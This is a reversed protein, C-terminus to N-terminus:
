DSNDDTWLSTSDLPCVPSSKESKQSKKNKSVDFRAGSIKGNANGDTDGDNNDVGHINLLPLSPPPLDEFSGVKELANRESANRRHRIKKGTPINRSKVTVTTNGSPMSPPIPAPPKTNDTPMGTMGINGVTPLITMGSDISFHFPQGNDEHANMEAELQETPTRRSNSRSCRASAVPSCAPTPAESTGINAMNISNFMANVPRIGIGFNPISRTRGLTRFPSEGSGKPPAIPRTKKRDAVTRVLEGIKKTAYKVIYDDIFNESNDSCTNGLSPLYGMSRYPLGGKGLKPQEMFNNGNSYPLGESHGNM